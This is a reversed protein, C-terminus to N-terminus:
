DGWLFLPSSHLGYFLFFATVFLVNQSYSNKSILFIMIWNKKLFNLIIALCYLWLFKGPLRICLHAISLLVPFALLNPSRHLLNFVGSQLTKLPALTLFNDCFSALANGLVFTCSSEILLLHFLFKLLRLHRRLTCGQSVDSCLLGQTRRPPSLQM